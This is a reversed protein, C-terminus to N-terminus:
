RKRPLMTSTVKRQKKLLIPRIVFFSIIVVIVLPLSMTSDEFRMIM